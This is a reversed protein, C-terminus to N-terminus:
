QTRYKAKSISKAGKERERRRRELEAKKKAKHIVDYSGSKVDRYRQQLSSEDFCDSFDVEKEYLYETIESVPIPNDDNTNHEDTLRPPSEGETETEVIVQEPSVKEPILEQEPTVGHLKVSTM